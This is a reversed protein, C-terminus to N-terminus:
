HVAHPWDEALSIHISLSATRQAASGRPLRAPQAFATAANGNPDVFIAGRMNREYQGREDSVIARDPGTVEIVQFVHGTPGGRNQYGVVGARATTHPFARPWEAAQWLNHGNVYRPLGLRNAQTSGCICRHIGDCLGGRHRHKAEAPSILLCALAILCAIFRM